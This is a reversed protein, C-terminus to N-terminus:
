RHVTNSNLKNRPQLIVYKALAPVDYAPDITAKGASVAASLIFGNADFKPRLESLLKAFAAKDAEAGGRQTPYEWDLDFGDFGYQKVFNVINDVFKARLGDNNVVQSFTSSGANWGGIAVM